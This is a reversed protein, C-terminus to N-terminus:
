LTYSPNPFRQSILLPHVLPRSLFECFVTKPVILNSNSLPPLLFLSLFFQHFFRLYCILMSVCVKLAFSVFSFLFLSVLSQARSPQFPPNQPALSFDPFSQTLSIHPLLPSCSPLLFLPLSLSLPLYSTLYRRRTLFLGSRISPLPSEQFLLPNPPYSYVIIVIVVNHLKM